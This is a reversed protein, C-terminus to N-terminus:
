DRLELWQHISANSFQYYWSHPIIASFGGGAQGGSTRMPGIYASNDPSVHLYGVTNSLTSGSGFISIYLQIPRDTLNQYPTNAFRSSTFDQWTQGSGIGGGLLDHYAGTNDQARFKGMSDDWLIFRSVGNTHDNLAIFSDNNSDKGIFAATDNNTGFIQIGSGITQLRQGGANFLRVYFGDEIRICDHESGDSATGKFLIDEGNAISRLILKGTNNDIRANAGDHYINLDGSNGFRARRGDQWQTDTDVVTPQTASVYTDTLTGAAAEAAAQAAEAALRATEANTEATEANAQSSQAAAQASQAAATYFTIQESDILVPVLENGSRVFGYGDPLDPVELDPLTGALSPSIRLARNVEGAIAQVQLATRDMGKELVSPDIEGGDLSLSQDYESTLVVTLREGAVLDTATFHVTGTAYDGGSVYWSGPPQQYIWETDVGLANTHIVKLDNQDVFQFTLDLRDAVGDGTIQARTETLAAVTM